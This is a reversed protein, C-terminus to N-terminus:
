PLTDHFTVTNEMRNWRLANPLRPLSRIRAYIEKAFGFQIEDASVDIYTYRFFSLFKPFRKLVSNIEAIDDRSLHSIQESNLNTINLSKEFVDFTKEPRLEDIEPIFDIMKRCVVDPNDTLEEYTFRLCPKLTKINGIQYFACIIWLKAINRYTFSKGWRRKVGECFAYPNRMIIMFYSPSFCAALQRARILHTPSKEVCVPQNLDWHLAWTEKVQDWPIVKGPNWRDETFLVSKVLTQGEVKFVSTHPSTSLIKQLLTSGSAPPCLLFLYKRGTASSQSM